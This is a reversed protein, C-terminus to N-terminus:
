RRIAAVRIISVMSISFYVGEAQRRTDWRNRWILEAKISKFFTEVMSNDYCNGKGSIRQGATTQKDVKLPSVKFGHKTLRRQYENSCYQSRRDTHHICGEPPQRLAVAMDLARIALDRKMRNSVAWGIVRRSYLDLIVALYLWGESTWIYSIDGAWKQNPGDASFDQDLLNPAINFTHNSDTTAKYKQTRIIKIGNEGMLRGVRRHGVKLGLEQLEETMRPRGYSELSLRHQERIHALLVMDDRQRQSMPRKRWARFGRSTVQMIRCLFEVSWEEKWTDIFAFRM